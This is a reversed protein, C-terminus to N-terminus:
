SATAAALDMVEKVAARIADLRNEYRSEKSIYEDAGLGELM